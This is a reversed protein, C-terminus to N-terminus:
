ELEAKKVILIGTNNLYSIKFKKIVIRRKFIPADLVLTEFEGGEGAPNIKYKLHFEQLKKILEKDIKRGLFTKDLPYAAIRSIVVEFNNRVIEKLLEIQNKQWLPNFCWLGLEHCIRQIRTAQYVSAVAGTVIGRIGYSKKADKILSKLDILEKEKEGSISRTILPLGISEAQLETLDINPTHFMYSDQNKSKISLLCVVEEENMAKSLAYCSDKGGSFLVGVKM